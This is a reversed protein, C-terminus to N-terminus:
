GKGKQNEEFDLRERVTAIEGMKVARVAEELSLEQDDDFERVLVAGRHEYTLRM